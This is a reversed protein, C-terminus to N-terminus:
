TTPAAREAAFALREAPGGLMCRPYSSGFRSLKGIGLHVCTIVAELPNGSFDTVGYEIPEFAPCSNFNPAFPRRFTCRDRPRPEVIPHEAM